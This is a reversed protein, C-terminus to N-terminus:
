PPRDKFKKWILCRQRCVDHSVIGCWPVDFMFYGDWVCMRYVLLVCFMEHCPHSEHSIANVGRPVWFRIELASELQVSKLRYSFLTTRGFGNCSKEVTTILINCRLVSLCFRGDLRNNLPPLIGVTHICVCIYKYIYM